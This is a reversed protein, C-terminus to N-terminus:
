ISHNQNSLPTRNFYYGWVVLESGYDQCFVCALKLFEQTTGGAGLLRCMFVSRNDLDDTLFNCNFIPRICRLVFSVDDTAVLLNTCWQPVLFSCVPGINILSVRTRKAKLPRRGTLM